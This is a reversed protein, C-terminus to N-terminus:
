ATKKVFLQNERQAIVEVKGARLMVSLFSDIGIKAEAANPNPNPNPNPNAVVGAEYDDYIM